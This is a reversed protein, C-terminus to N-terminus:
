VTLFAVVVFCLSTPRKEAKPQPTIIDLIIVEGEGGGGVVCVCVTMDHAAVLCKYLREYDIGQQASFMGTMMLTLRSTLPIQNEQFSM